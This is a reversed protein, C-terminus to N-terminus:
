EDLAQLLYMGQEEETLGLEKCRLYGKVQKLTSNKVLQPLLQSKIVDEETVHRFLRPWNDELLFEANIPKRDIPRHWIEVRDEWSYTQTIFVYKGVSKRFWFQGRKANTRRIAGTSTIDGIKM